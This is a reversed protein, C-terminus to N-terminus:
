RAREWRVLAVVLDAWVFPSGSAGPPPPPEFTYRARGHTFTWGSGNRGAYRLEAPPLPGRTLRLAAAGVRIPSVVVDSGYRGAFISLDRPGTGPDPQRPPGLAAEVVAAAVEDPRTPGQTNILV